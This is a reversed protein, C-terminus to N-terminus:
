AGGKTMSPMLGFKVGGGGLASGLLGPPPSSVMGRGTLWDLLRGFLSRQQATDDAVGQSYVLYTEGIVKEGLYFTMRGAIQGAEVPAQVQEPLVVEARVQETELLPYSVDRDTEVPVFRNLSGTVPLTRVQKGARALPFSPYTEFGYDFLAAHDAWDDPDHLTVAILRQEGRQACSVLTRGALDTYGTKMGICGEYRWLLKNHNVLTREGITISKTAVMEALVEHDMVVRALLAMDAATSYHNEDNLGNPNAFHTDEMGLDAAWQNMWAVFTDVDGACAGAVALAADNGSALLLGYLLAELTLVEGERLYMSSGEARTYEAKITVEQALDPTSEVAVLATMLKTISAIPRREHANHEYLIRGSDWDVLIASAASTSPAAGQAWPMGIVLCVAAVLGALVRKM